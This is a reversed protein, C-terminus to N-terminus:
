EEISIDYSGSVLNLTYIGSEAEKDYEIGIDSINKAKLKLTATSNAPITVSYLVKSNSRKWSSVIEGYPSNHKAEFHELGDVFHPELLINKFGPKSPDPKIGGLAKYCEYCV